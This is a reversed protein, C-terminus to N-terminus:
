HMCACVHSMCSMTKGGWAGAAKLHSVSPLSSVQAYTPKSGADRQEIRTPIYLPLTRVAESAQGTDHPSAHATDVAAGRVLAADNFGM